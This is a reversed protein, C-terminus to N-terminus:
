RKGSADNFKARNKASPRGRGAIKPVAAIASSQVSYANGNVVDIGPTDIFLGSARSGGLNMARHVHIGASNLESRLFTALSALSSETSTLFILEFSKDPLPVTTAIVSRRILARWEPRQVYPSILGDNVFLPGAQLAEQCDRINLEDTSWLQPAGGVRVCLIGDQYDTKTNLPSIKKGNVVLLGTALPFSASQNFGGNILLKPTTEEAVEQLTYVPQDRLKDLTGKVDIIRIALKTPDVRAVLVTAQSRDENHFHTFSAYALGPAVTKWEEANLSLLSLVIASMLRMTM